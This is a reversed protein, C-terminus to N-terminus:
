HDIDHSSAASYEKNEGKQNNHLFNVIRAPILYVFVNTNINQTDKIIRVGNLWHSNLYFVAYTCAM